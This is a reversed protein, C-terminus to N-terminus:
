DFELIDKQGALIMSIQIGRSWTKNFLFRTHIASVRPFLSLFGIPLFIILGIFSDYVRGLEVISDWVMTKKFIPSCAQGILLIFWGTPVSGLFGALVDSITLKCVVSISAMVCSFCLFVVIGFKKRGISVMKLVALVTLVVLWSLAYVLLISKSRRVTNLHYVIAYQYILFRLAIIIELLLAPVCTKRLHEQEGIWWAEWSQDASMGIGRQNGIWLWWDTWDDVMRKWDFCLPNFIFPVFLWSTVLFWISLRVFLHMISFHYSSGFALYVVLLILLEIGKVFHSRSYTRYNDGFKAHYMFYGHCTPRCKTGGHLITRMYYYTKTGLQFAFFMSALSLQFTFLERLATCFGQELFTEMLMPLVLMLGLQFIAQAAMDNELPKINDQIRPDLLISKELGCMVLYLRGYLFVYVMLVTAMSSFYVGVTTFYFSLMRCFDFRSGLRYNERSLTQEGNGIAVKAEFVTIDDMGMHLGKGIQMYEHHTVNGGRITSNFGSFIDSLNITKSAKSIGGITIHFLRDFIDSHGYHFRVKLPNALVRQGITAFTTEQNSMFTALSSVSGTFIHERLGLITPKNQGYKEKGFEELVNRMKFAEEVYNDQNIDITQLAEGRTFIIAHNQNEPRGEGIDTIKGPLKIRYIEEAYKDGGKILVSYYTKEIVGDGTLAEVEDIYAVRLSPYMKLLHLINLYCANDKPNGSIKQMGYVQCCIVYTFKIDALALAMDVLAGGEQYSTTSVRNFKAIDTRDQICQIELARRYYMTGRVTRALTHGRYSAWPSIEDIRKNLAEEDRPRFKIRELCNTWEDPFVKRLYFIISIRNDDQRNLDEPMFFVDEDYYPTLVSFSMMTRVQPARPMNMFLSNSFFVMRRRAELNTPIYTASEKTTLLLQLRVCKERFAEDRLVDLKLNAFLENDREDDKLIGQGRKMIDQTIIKMIDQLLNVIKEKISEIVKMLKIADEVESMTKQPKTPLNEELVPKLILSLLMDFKASLQPLEDLRFEKVLSQYRISDEISDRIHDVVDRDSLDGILSYMINLLTDYCEKVAYSIYPDQNIRKRLEEDREKVGKVMGLATPIKNALLFIPLQFVGNDGISSPVFLLDRERNSLLDEERLTNIFCNWIDSFTDMHLNTEVEHGRSNSQSGHSPVLNKCFARPIEEFRSKLMRLTQIEGLRSFFGNVGGCITSFIAYWIQTDVIYVMVIPAWLSIIAGSTHRLYDKGLFMIAKTLGVIPSIEVYYSFVSKCIILLMWFCTYKLVSCTDEYMGRAVYLRPQTWWLLLRVIRSNSHESTRRIPPCIFFLASFINPLMYLIVAFSYISESQINGIWINFLKVLGRPRNQFSSLYSTPLIILWAVAVVFKLIFRIMQSCVLSRWADRNIVLELTAQLFNLFAATIFITLVNRFVKPELISHLSGSPSWAVIVMAQFALVFFAWLRDFSRFLHLFTRVEVFNIKSMRPTSVAHGHPETETKMKEAAAFFDSGLDMPWGLQNFCKKLWFFENLDDYNRWKSYSVNGHKNVLSAKQIVNYIPQIVLKLFADDRGDPRFLPDFSSSMIGYLDRAMRHFIYCLCEPMFRVNSAEGWILFYLGVYLLEPQQTAPKTASSPIKINSELDLYCCWSIYNQFLKKMLYIVTSTQILHNSREGHRATRGERMQINALLLILNEKQNEVNDKQFGFTQRLWDLLDQIRIEGPVSSPDPIPHLLEVAAKIEPIQMVPHPANIKLPLINYAKEKEVVKADKNHTSGSELTHVPEETIEM